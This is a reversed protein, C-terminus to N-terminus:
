PNQPLSHKQFFQWIIDTASPTHQYPGLISPPLFHKGGPWYHGLNKFLYLTLWEGKKPHQYTIKTFHTNHQIKKQLPFPYYHLWRQLMPQIPPKPKSLPISKWTPKGGHLPNLPDATGSIYLLPLPRKPPLSTKWDSGAVPAAAALLHSYKRALYFTLSAGNSFGTIYIKRPNIYFNKPLEQLITLFFEDDPSHRRVAGLLKRQSGDNWNQPNFLFRPPLHPYPRSGEPFVALFTEKQAKKIWNTQQMAKKATGGAGHFMFVVPLPYTSTHPPLYVLYHRTQNQVITTFKHIGPPYKKKALAYTPTLTLLALTLYLTPLSLNPKM